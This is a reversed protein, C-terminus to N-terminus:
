QFRRMAQRLFAIQRQYRQCAKCRQVHLRLRIRDRLSLPTDQMQSILRSAERCDTFRGLFRFRPV